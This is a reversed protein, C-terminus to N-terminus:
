NKIKGYFCGMCKNLKEDETGQKIIKKVEVLDEDKDSLISFKCLSSSSYKDLLQEKKDLSSPFSFATELDSKDQMIKERKDVGFKCNEFNKLTKTLTNGKIYSDGKIILFYFYFYFYFYFLFFNVNM